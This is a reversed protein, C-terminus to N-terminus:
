KFKELIVIREPTTQAIAEDFKLFHVTDVEASVTNRVHSRGKSFDQVNVVPLKDMKVDVHFYISEWTTNGWSSKEKYQMSRDVMHISDQLDLKTEEKFERLATNVPNKNDYRNDMRGKPFSLPINWAPFSNEQLIRQYTKRHMEFDRKGKHYNCRAIRSKLDIWLDEWIQDFTISNDLIQKREHSTTEALLKKLEDETDDCGIWKGFMLHIFNYSNRQKIMVFYREGKVNVSAVLGYSRKTQTTAAM